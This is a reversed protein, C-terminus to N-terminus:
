AAGWHGCRYLGCCLAYSIARHRIRSIHRATSSVAKIRGFWPLAAAVILRSPFRIRWNAVAARSVAFSAVVALIAFIKDTNTQRTPGVNGGFVVHADWVTLTSANSPHTRSGFRTFARLHNRSVM